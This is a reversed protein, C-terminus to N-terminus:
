LRCVLHQTTKIFEIITFPQAKNNLIPTIEKGIVGKYDMGFIEDVFDKSVLVNRKHEDFDEKSFM